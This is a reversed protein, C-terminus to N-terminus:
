SDTDAAPPSDLREFIRSLEAHRLTGADLADLLRRAEEVGELAGPGRGYKELIAGVAEIGRHQIFPQRGARATSKVLALLDEARPHTYLYVYTALRMGWDESDLYPLIDLPGAALCHKVMESYVGFMLERRHPTDQGQYTKRVDNYKKALAALQTTADPEPLKGAAVGASRTLRLASLMDRATQYRDAADPQIARDLTERLRPGVAPAYKYWTGLSLEHVVRAGSALDTEYWAPLRNTLLCVATMGLSYIDSAFVPRGMYQEYPAFGRTGIFITKKPDGYLGAAENIVEKVAGFDILFPQGDAKRSMINDPKIDRHIVNKSHVFQLVPLTRALLERVEAEGLAGQSNLRDQLSEGEIWDQVLYIVGGDESCAHLRPIQPNLNGLTELVAAERLFRLRVLEYLDPNDTRFSLQKVVCKPRSPLHMDVALYAQGFGGGGIKKLVLYRNNFILSSDMPKQEQTVNKAGRPRWRAERRLGRRGRLM